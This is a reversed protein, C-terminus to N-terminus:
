SVVGVLADREHLRGLGGCDQGIFDGTTVMPTSPGGLTYFWHCKMGDYLVTCEHGQDLQDVQLGELLLPGSTM